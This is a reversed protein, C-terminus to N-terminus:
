DEWKAKLRALEDKEKQNIAAQRQGEIATRYKYEEETETRIYSIEVKIFPCGYAEGAEIEIKGKFERPILDFKEKFFELFLEPDEPLDLEINDAKFVIKTIDNKDMNGGKGRIELM